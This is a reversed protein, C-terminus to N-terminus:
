GAVNFHFHAGAQLAREGLFVPFYRGDETRQLFYTLRDNSAEPFKKEVAKIANAETAYTRNAELKILRAM